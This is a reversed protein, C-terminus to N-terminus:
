DHKEQEKKKADDMLEMVLDLEYRNEEDSIEKPKGREAGKEEIGEGDESKGGRVLAILKELRGEEDVVGRKKVEELLAKAAELEGRSAAGEVLYAWAQADLKIGGERELMTVIEVAGAVDGKVIAMGRAWLHVTARTPRVGRSMSARLVALAAPVNSAFLYATMMANYPVISREVPPTAADEEAIMEDFARRAGRLDGVRAFGLILVTRTYHNPRMGRALMLRHLHLAHRVDQSTPKHALYGAILTTYTIADPAPHRPAGRAMANFLARASALDRTRVLAHLLINHATLTPPHRLLPLMTTFLRLAQSPRDHRILASMLINYTQETYLHTRIIALDTSTILLRFISVLHDLSQPSYSRSLAHMIIRVTSSTPPLRYTQTMDSHWAIVNSWDGQRAFHKIFTNCTITDPSIGQRKMESFTTNALSLSNPLHTNIITNFTVADFHINLRLMSTLIQEVHALDSLKTLKSILTNCTFTSLLVVSSSSSTSSLTALHEFLKVAKDTDYELFLRGVMQERLRPHMDMGRNSRM